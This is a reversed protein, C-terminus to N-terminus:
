RVGGDGPTGSAAAAATGASVAAPTGVADFGSKVAENSRSQVRVAERLNGALSGCEGRAQDIRREWSARVVGLEALASLAGGGAVVGRHAADLDARVPGLLTVLHDAGEAARLWPRRHHQLDGEGAAGPAGDRGPMGVPGM